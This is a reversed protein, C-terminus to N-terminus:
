TEEHDRDMPSFQLQPMQHSLPFPPDPGAWSVDELRAVEKPEESGQRGEGGRQKQPYYNGKNSVEWEGRSTVEPVALVELM